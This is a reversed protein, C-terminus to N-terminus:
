KARFSRVAELFPVDTPRATHDTYVFTYTHEASDAGQIRFGFGEALTATAMVNRYKNGIDCYFKIGKWASSRIDTNKAIPYPATDDTFESCNASVEDVSLANTSVEVPLIKNVAFNVPLSDIYLRLSQATNAVDQNQWEMYRVVEQTHDGIEVWREPLTFTYDPKNIIIREPTTVGKDVSQTSAKTVDQGDQHAIIWWLGGFLLAPVVVLTAALGLWSRRERYPRDHRYLRM